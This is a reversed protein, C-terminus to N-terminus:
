LDSIKIQILEVGDVTQLRQLGDGRAILYDLHGDEDLTLGLARYTKSDDEGVDLEVQVECSLPIVSKIKALRM